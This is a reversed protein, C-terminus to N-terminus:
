AKATHIAELIAEQRSWMQEREQQGHDDYGLLHLIGHVVLRDLEDPVSQGYEAAQIAARPYSVVLDGLHRVMAPPSVFGDTGEGMGFALVDTPADEGLYQLNLRRINHDDTVLLAVTMPESIGEQSLTRLIVETLRKPDVRGEFQPHIQVSPETEM